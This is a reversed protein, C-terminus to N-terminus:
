TKERMAASVTREPELYIIIRDMGPPDARIRKEVRVSVDHAEEM